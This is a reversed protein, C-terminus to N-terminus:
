CPATRRIPIVRANASPETIPAAAERERLEEQGVIGQLRDAIDHSWRACEDLDSGYEDEDAENVFLRLRECESALDRAARVASKMDEHVSKM